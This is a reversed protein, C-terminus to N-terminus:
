SEGYQILKWHYHHGAASIRTGASYHRISIGAWIGTGSIRAISIGASVRTISIGASIWLSAQLCAVDSPATGLPPSCLVQSGFVTPVFCKEAPAHGYQVVCATIEALGTVM